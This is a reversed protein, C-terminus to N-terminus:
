ATLIAGEKAAKEARAMALEYAKAIRKQADAKSGNRGKARVSLAMGVTDVLVAIRGMPTDVGALAAKVAKWDVTVSKQAKVLAVFEGWVPETAYGGRRGGGGSPVKGECLATWRDHALKQAKAADPEQSYVDHLCQNLGYGMVYGLANAPLQTVDCRMTVDGKLTVSVRTPSVSKLTVTEFLQKSMQTYGTNPEAPMAWGSTMICLVARTDLGSGDRTLPPGGLPPPLDTLLRM